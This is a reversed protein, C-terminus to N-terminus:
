CIHVVGPRHIKGSLRELAEVVRKVFGEDIKPLPDDDMKEVERVALAITEPVEEKKVLTLVLNDMVTRHTKPKAQDALMVHRVYVGFVRQVDDLELETLELQDFLAECAGGVLVGDYFRSTAVLGTEPFFDLEWRTGPKDCPDTGNTSIQTSM